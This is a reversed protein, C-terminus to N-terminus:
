AGRKARLRALRRERKAARRAKNAERRGAARYAACKVRNRNWKRNKKGGKRPARDANSM